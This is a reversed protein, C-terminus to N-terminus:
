DLYLSRPDCESYCCLYRSIVRFLTTRVPAEQLPMAKSNGDAQNKPSPIHLVNCDLVYCCEIHNRRKGTTVELRDTPVGCDSDWRVARCIASCRMKNDILEKLGIM